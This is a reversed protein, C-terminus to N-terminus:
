ILRNLGPCQNTNCEEIVESDGICEEGGYEAEQKPERVKTRFGGACSKSCEGTTWDDWVCDVLLYFIQSCRM